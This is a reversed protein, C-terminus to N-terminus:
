KWVMCKTDARDRCPKKGSFMQSPVIGFINVLNEKGPKEEVLQDIFTDLLIEYGIYSSGKFGATQAYIVSKDKFERLISSV